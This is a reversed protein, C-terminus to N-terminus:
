IIPRHDFGRQRGEGGSGEVQRLARLANKLDAAAVALPHEEQRALERRSAYAPDIGGSLQNSGRHSPDAEIWLSADREFMSACAVEGVGVVEEVQHSLDVTPEVGARDRLDQAGTPVEGKDAPPSPEVPAETAVAEDRDLVALDLALSEVDGAKLAHSLREVALSGSAIRTSPIGSASSTL